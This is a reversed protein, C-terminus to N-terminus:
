EPFGQHGVKPHGREVRSTGACLSAVVSCDSTLDQVLDVNDLPIMTPETPLLQGDASIQINALADIPRKWGGFSNLQAQSLPLPKSDTFLKEDHQIEFEESLPPREWQKFIFGNLKSGELLIISERTTLKRKSNPQVNISRKKSLDQCSKLHDAKKILENFKTELRKRDAPKSAIELARMYLEASAITASLANLSNSKTSISQELKLARRELATCPEAM